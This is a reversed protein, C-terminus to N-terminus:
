LALASGWDPDLEVVLEDPFELVGRLHGRLEKFSM